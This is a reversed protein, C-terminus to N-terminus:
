FDSWPYDFDVNVINVGANVEDLTRVLSNTQQLDRDCTRITVDKLSIQPDWRATSLIACDVKFGPTKLANGKRLSERIRRLYIGVEFQMKLCSYKIIGDPIGVDKAGQCFQAEVDKVYSARSRRISFDYNGRIAVNYCIYKTTLKGCLTVQPDEITTLICEPNEDFFEVFPAYIAPKVKAGKRLEFLVGDTIFCNSNDVNDVFDLLSVSRHIASTDVVYVVGPTIESCEFIGSSM